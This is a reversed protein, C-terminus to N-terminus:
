TARRWDAATVAYVVSDLRRGDVLEAEPLLQEFRFDLREAIAQSRRNGVAARIEVRDLRWGRVAHDVLARVAETMTGKGQQPAALWYGLSTSRREWDVERYGVVGAINGDCVVALQFGDNAALQAKTRRLFDVTDAYTQGAAWPLWRALLARNAEILAHLEAADSEELLRLHRGESIALRM